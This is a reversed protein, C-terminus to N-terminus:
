EKVVHNLELSSYGWTIQLPLSTVHEHLCGLQVYEHLYSPLWNESRLSM